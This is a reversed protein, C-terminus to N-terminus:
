EDRGFALLECGPPPSWSVDTPGLTAFGSHARNQLLTQAAWEAGPASRDLVSLVVPAQCEHLWQSTARAGNLIILEPPHKWSEWAPADTDVSAFFSRWGLPDDQHQPRIFASLPFPEQKGTPTIAVDIEQRLRSVSGIVVLAQSWSTIFPLPDRGNLARRLQHTESSNLIPSLHQNVDKMNVGPPIPRVEQLRGPLFTAESTRIRGGSGTGYYEGVVINKAFRFWARSGPTLQELPIGPVASPDAVGAHFYRAWTFGFSLAAATMSLSPVSVAIVLKKWRQPTAKELALAVGLRMWTMFWAPVPAQRGDPNQSTFLPVQQLPEDHPSM